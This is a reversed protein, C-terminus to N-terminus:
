TVRRLVPDPPAKPGGDELRPASPEFWPDLTIPGASGDSDAEGAAEALADGLDASTVGVTSDSAVGIDPPAPPSWEDLARAVTGADVLSLAEFADSLISSVNPPTPPLALAAATDGSADNSEAETERADEERQDGNGEAYENDPGEEGADAEDADALSIGFSGPTWAAIRVTAQASGEAAAAAERIVLTNADEGEGELVFRFRGDASIWDEGDRSMTGSITVDDVIVIGGDDEITDAGDGGDFRYTDMGTGGRLLDDGRGGSLEDDGSGGDLQDDGSGGDLEDNGQQGAVRDRGSGGLLADDGADGELLDDGARGRLVDDGRGGHIRDTDAGGTVRDGDDRAFIVQHVPGDATGKLEVSVADGAARDIFRWGDGPVELPRGAAAASRWAAHRARDGLWADSLLQEGSDPDFRDYRGSADGLRALERDGTFAWPSHEALALRVGGETAALQELERGTMGDLRLFRATTRIGDAAQELAALQSSSDSADDQRVDLARALFDVFRRSRTADDAGAENWADAFTRAELAPDLRRLLTEIRARADLAPSEASSSDTVEDPAPPSVIALGDREETWARLDVGPRRIWGERLGREIEEKPTGLWVAVAYDVPPNREATPVVAADPM